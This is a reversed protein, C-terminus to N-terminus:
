PIPILKGVVAIAKDIDADGVDRHTVFRVTTPGVPAALVGREKLAACFAAPDGTEYLVINSDVSDEPVGLAEALRRARAHDEPLRPRHALAVEGAAALVGVQRMGGGFLKRIRRAEAIREASSVVASGAPAGLGKSYCVSVTDFGAALSAESQGLAAAANWLRAGDLHVRLGAERAAALLPEVDSRRQVRGGWMNHTNEIALAATRSTYSNKPRIAALVDAVKMRGDASPIPRPLLGSLAAMGAMEYHLIHARAELLVESSPPALLRLSIQNAMTGTPTFLAADFGLLAATTEELRRVTPDEEFVDDGVEANAMARRMAESPKTVTDSRLDIM